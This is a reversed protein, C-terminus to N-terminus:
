REAGITKIGADLYRLKQQFAKLADEAQQDNRIIKPTLFIILETRRRNNGRSKFLNGFVPARRLVPVGSDNESQSERILGGLIATGGNRVAVTSTFQRQQITPSDIGSSITQIADSVEQEVELVVMDSANIRPKVQLIIGTDVLQVTSVIPADPNAVGQSSQTIIPVQDGVQLNATQNNQVMISPASIVNVDTVSALADIAVGANPGAVYNFNFSNAVPAFLDPLSGGGSDNDDNARAPFFAQTRGDELFWRVGYQLDDTLTVEAITAEILVQPPLVDMREILTVLDRYESGTARIILANNLEDAVISLGDRNSAGSFSRSATPQRPAPRLANQVQGSTTSTQSVSRSPTSQTRGASPTLRYAAELQTALQDAPANKVTYYYLRREDGEAPQDLREIWRKTEQFQGQTKALVFLQNLRPLPIVTILDAANGAITPLIADLESAISASDAHRLTFMGFVSNTLSPLDFGEITGVLTKVQGQPGEVILIGADDEPTIQVTSPSFPQTLRAIASPTTNEIRILKKTFGFQQDIGTTQNRAENLPSLLFGAEEEILALNSAALVSELNQLAERTPVSRPSTLTITANVSQAIAVPEGLADNIISRVVDAANANVFNLQLTEVLFTRNERNNSPLNRRRSGQFQLREKQSAVANDISVSLSKTETKEPAQSATQEVSKPVGPYNVENKDDPTQACGSLLALTLISPKLIKFQSM